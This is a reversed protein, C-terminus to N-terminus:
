PARRGVLRLLRRKIRDRREQKEKRLAIGQLVAITLAPDRGITIHTTKM